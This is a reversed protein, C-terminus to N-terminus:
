MYVRMLNEDLKSIYLNNVLIRLSFFKRKSTNQLAASEELSDCTLVVDYGGDGNSNSYSGNVEMVVISWGTM